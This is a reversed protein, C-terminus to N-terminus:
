RTIAGCGSGLELINEMGNLSLGRILNARAPSLHYESSWDRIKEQLQVSDVSLDDVSDLCARIYGEAEDGESYAFTESSDLTWVDNEFQRLNNNQRLPFM